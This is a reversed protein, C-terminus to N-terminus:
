RRYFQFLYAHSNYRYGSAREADVALPGVGEQLEEIAALFEESSVVLPAVKARSGRLPTLESQHSLSDSEGTEARIESAM